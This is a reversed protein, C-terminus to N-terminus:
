NSVGQLFFPIKIVELPQFLINSAWSNLLLIKKKYAQEQLYAVFLNITEDNLCKQDDILRDYGQKTINNEYINM